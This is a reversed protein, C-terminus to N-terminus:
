YLTKTRLYFLISIIFTIFTGKEKKRKKKPLFLLLHFKVRFLIYSSYLVLKCVIFCRGSTYMFLYVIYSTKLQKLYTLNYSHTINRSFKRTCFYIIPILFLRFFLLLFFHVPEYYLTQNMVEFSHICYSENTIYFIYYKIFHFNRLHINTSM